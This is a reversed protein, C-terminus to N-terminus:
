QHLSLGEGPWTGHELHCIRSLAKVLLSKPSLTKQRGGGALRDWLLYKNLFPYVASVNKKFFYIKLKNPTYFCLVLCKFTYDLCKLGAM